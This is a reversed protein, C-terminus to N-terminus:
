QVIEKNWFIITFFSLTTTVSKGLLVVFDLKGQRGYQIGLIYIFM